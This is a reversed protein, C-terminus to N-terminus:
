SAVVVAVVAGRLVGIVDEVVVMLRAATMKADAAHVPRTGEAVARLSPDGLAGIPM